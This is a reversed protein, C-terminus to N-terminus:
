RAKWVSRRADATFGAKALSEPVSIPAIAIVRQNIAQWLLVCIFVLAATGILNLVLACCRKWWLEGVDWLRTFLGPGKDPSKGLARAKAASLRAAKSRSFSFGEGRRGAM